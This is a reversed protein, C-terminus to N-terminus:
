PGNARAEHIAAVTMLSGTVLIVHDRPVEARLRELAGAPGRPDVRVRTGEVLPVLAEPEMAREGPPAVLVVEEALPLLPGLVGRHDKDRMIGFVLHVSRGPWLDRVARALAQAAMPNHAGDLIVTPATSLIELRGPWRTEAVGERLCQEGVPFWRSLELLAVVALTANAWQHPGLLGPALGDIVRGAWLVRGEPMDPVVGLDIGLDRARAQIVDLAEGRAATVAPVGPELIGAKERAISRLDPGLFAQHDLGVPTIVSMVQRCVRTADLRGGLGVELIWLDMGQDALWLFAAATLHEFVTLPLGAAARDVEELASALEAAPIERRAARIRETWRVMHPSTYLGVRYGARSLISEMYACTSGKGNTGAVLVAPRALHPDGLRALAARIRALGLSIDAPRERHLYREMIESPDHIEPREM